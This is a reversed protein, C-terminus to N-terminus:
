LMQWAGNYDLCLTKYYSVNAQRLKCHFTTDNCEVLSKSIDRGEEEGGGGQKEEEMWRLGGTTFFRTARTVAQEVETAFGYTTLLHTILLVAKIQIHCVQVLVLPNDYM